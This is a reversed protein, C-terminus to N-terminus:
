LCLATFNGWAVLFRYRFCYIEPRIIPLSFIGVDICITEAEALETMLPSV